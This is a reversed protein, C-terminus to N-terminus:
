KKNNPAHVLDLFSKEKTYYRGYPNQLSQATDESPAAERVNRQPLRASADTKAVCRKVAKKVVRFRM